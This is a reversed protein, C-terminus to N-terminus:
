FDPQEPWQEEDHLLFDPGQLWTKASEINDPSLGRSAIDAPNLDTPVYKWQHASSLTQITEIRNAVFTKFHCSQSNIYRLVVTADSWFVVRQFDYQLEQCIVNGLKAALVAATLELRPITVPKHPTVCSKGCVFRCTVRDDDYCVRVYACVGYGQASADAFVHLEIFKAIQDPLKFCREVSLSELFPLMSLWKDWDSSPM